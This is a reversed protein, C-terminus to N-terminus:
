RELSGGATPRSVSMADGDGPRTEAASTKPVAPWGNDAAWGSIAAVIADTVDPIPPSADVIVWTPDQDALQRYGDRVRQHFEGPLREISDPPGSRGLRDAVTSDDCDLMVTLDPALGSIAWGYIDRVVRRGFGFGYGQYALASGLSRDALVWVGDNLCPAVIEHAHQANDAAFLLLRARESLTDATGARSSPSDDRLARESLLMERLSAGLSTAGPERTERVQIGLSARLRGAVRPIQVTKGVGDRGEIAVFRGRAAPWDTGSAGAQDNM